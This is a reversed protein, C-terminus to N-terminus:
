ISAPVGGHSTRESKQFTLLVPKPGIQLLHMANRFGMKSINNNNISVLLDGIHVKNPQRLIAGEPKVKTVEPYFSSIAQKVVIGLAGDEDKWTINYLSDDLKPNLSMVSLRSLAISDRDSFRVGTSDGNRLIDRVSERSVVSSTGSLNTDRLSLVSNDDMDDPDARQFRLVVPRPGEELLTIVRSFDIRYTSIENIATLYDGLRVNFMGPIQPNGRCKSVCPMGRKMDPKFGLGLPISDRWLVEYEDLMLASSERMSKHTRQFRLSVPKPVDQLLKLIHRIDNHAVMQSGVSLLVDGRSVDFIDACTSLTEHVRRVIPLGSTDDSEFYLGLMGCEWTIEYESDRVLVKPITSSRSPSSSTSETPASGDDDSDSFEDFSVARVVTPKLPVLVKAVPVQETSMPPSKVHPSLLQVPSPTHLSAQAAVEEAAAAAKNRAEQALQAREVMAAARAAKDVLIKRRTAARRGLFGRAIRHLVTAAQNCRHFQRRCILMRVRSQITTAAHVERAVQQLARVHRQATVSRLWSQVTVIASRVLRYRRRAVFGRGIRQLTGTAAGQLTVQVRHLHQYAAQIMFVKTLGIQFPHDLAGLDAHAATLAAVQTALDATKDTLLPRFERQFIAHPMRVPYGARSIKVAELVGSCRLQELVRPATFEAPHLMDNPKICRVFHPVTAHLLELLTTLQSKFKIVVSSSVAGGGGGGSSQRKSSHSHKRMHSSTPSTRFLSTVFPLTSGVLLELAEPHVSDKNKDCFGATSYVVTGAYHVVAFQGHGRQLKSSQFCSSGSFTDYFKAALQTDNGRPVLCQEDLLSFLGMPRGDVLSVCEDNSPYSVFTWEIAEQVYERQEMDFVFSAFLQQLKENAYNICLQELSNTAFIEFGFIDVVGIFRDASAAAAVASNIREVLYDFVRSYITKAVVDRAVTAHSATLKVVVHDLGAKIRRTTMSTEMAAVDLGLLKSVISVVDDCENTALSSVAAHGDPHSVFSINGLHLVAAVLQLVSTQDHSSIDLTTMARLTKGFQDGDDVNDERDVCGSQNLYQFSHVPSSSLHFTHRLAASAGRVLEYFIHYNREGKAQSVLRVRELLYTSISAGQLGGTAADFGLRIFKGFRSSNNNRTTKANGFAELIPNSELVRQRIACTDDADTSSSVAALYTMLIKTTETKGAGSEGSVLISQNPNGNNLLSTMDRYAKDAVSFVHPPLPRLKEGRVSQRYGHDIYQQVTADDYLRPLTQFPNVAVLITGTSTYIDQKAFRVQLTHLIAPEHLHVLTTLDEVGDVRQALPNCVHVHTAVDTAGRLTVRDVENPTTLRCTVVVNEVEYADVVALHWRTGHLVWVETGVEM